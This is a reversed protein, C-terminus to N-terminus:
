YRIFIKDSIRMDLVSANKELLNNKHIVKLSKIWSLYTQEEPLKVTLGRYYTINWRRKNIYELKQIESLTSPKIKLSKIFEYALVNANEGVVSLLKEETLQDTIVHGHKDIIFKNNWIAFKIYEEVTIKIAHPLIRKVIASKVLPNKTVETHISNLSTKLLNIGLPLPNSVTHGVNNKEIIIIKVLPFYAKLYCHTILSCLLIIICINLIKYKYLTCFFSKARNIRNFFLM